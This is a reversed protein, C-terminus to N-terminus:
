KGPGAVPNTLTLDRFPLNKQYCALQLQLSNALATNTQEAAQQMALQVEAEAVPFQGTEAYAAALTALIVPNNGGSLQKASQALEVARQGNRISPDPCTALIWALTNQVQVSQPALALSKEYCTVADAPRGMRMLANGLNYYTDAYNPNLALAKQCAVIAEQYRGLRFLALGLNNFPQASDPALATATQFQLIAEDTRGKQLLASGLNNHADAFDPDTELAKQYEDIAADLQGKQALANGLNNRARAYDPQIALAKQYQDIAADLQGKQMLVVGLNYCADANDPNIKLAQQYDAIAEDLRGKRLMVRGLNYYADAYHPNIKLAAQYSAIAKDVQGMQFQVGGLDNYAEAYAPHIRIAEQFHFAALAPQTPILVVGLNYHQIYNDRTVDIARTFVTVSDKWFRIEYRTLLSCAVFAAAALASLICTRRRLRETLGCLAWVLFLNIGILPVYTYRDAISQSGLQVLNIVPVLTGLYWLWGFLLFPQGRRMAVALFSISVLLAGAALVEVLPWHGPHPYFMCLNEPWFFKGLYRVYSIVANGLRDGLTLGAMEQTAGGKQQAVYSVVSVAFALAFFPIKELILRGSNKTGLRKLPWYDLLLFVFPLTVLMAKSMLGLAFLLLTLCYFLKSKGGPQSAEEAFRAYTWMALLWFLTSLVDKRESIWAVSEVHLPHLGFLGAVALSRWGVGTLKRFVLFVLVTDLAHLLVNTLHHGWPQLGYVQVDAMHSLWTLPYWNCYELSTFAWCFNKWSLGSNVHPNLLLYPVEDCALFEGQLSPLYLWVVYIFLLLSVLFVNRTNQLDPIFSKARRGTRGGSAAPVSSDAQSFNENAMNVNFDNRRADARKM